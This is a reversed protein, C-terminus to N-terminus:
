RPAEAGRWLAFDPVRDRASERQGFGSLRAQLRALQVSRVPVRGAPLRHLLGRLPRDGIAARVRGPEVQARHGDTVRHVPHHGQPHGGYGPLLSGSGRQPGAPSSRANASLLLM